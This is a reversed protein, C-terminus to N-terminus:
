GHLLSPQAVPRTGGSPARATRASSNVAAFYGRPVVVVGGASVPFRERDRALDYGIVEGPPIVNDRDVIVNHLRATSGVVVRDLLICRSLRAGGRVRAQRGVISTDVSASEVTAGAAVCSAHLESGHVLPPRGVRLRQSAVPWRPDDLEFAPRSGLTDLQAAFYADITGVDRWYCSDDHAAMGPVRNHTFDYALVRYQSVLRPLIHQGFDTEGRAHALALERRLLAADFIYNGMSALAHGPRGHMAAPAVPKEHFACVQGHEDAEVIGFARAEALPVPLSSITVDARRERHFDIMQRVDMRYLHDAGFVLVLDAELPVRTLSQWVADATGQFVSGPAPRVVRVFDEGRARARRGDLGTLALAHTAHAPGFPTAWSQRVHEILAAAHHQVLLDVGPVQSNRLNALVFDVVCHNGAFPLAPKCWGATLPHLRSGAGGAMVFVHLTRQAQTRSTM